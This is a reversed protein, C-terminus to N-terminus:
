NNLSLLRSIMINCIKITQRHIIAPPRKPSLLPTHSCFKGNSRENRNRICVYSHDIVLINMNTEDTTLQQTIAHSWEFHTHGHTGGMAPRYKHVNRVHNVLMLRKMDENDDCRM